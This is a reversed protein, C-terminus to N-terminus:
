GFSQGCLESFYKLTQHELNCFSNGLSKNGDNLGAEQQVDRIVSCNPLLLPAEYVIV